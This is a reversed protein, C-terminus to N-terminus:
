HAKGEHLDDRGSAERNLVSEIDTSIFPCFDHLRISPFAYQTM